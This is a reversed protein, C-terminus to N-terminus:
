AGPRRVRNVHVDMPSLFISVQRWACGPRFGPPTADAMAERGRAGATLRALVEDGSAAPPMVTGARSFFFVFFLALPVFLAPSLWRCVPGVVLGAGARWRHLSSGRFRSALDTPRRSQQPYAGRGFAGGSKVRRLRRAGQPARDAGAFIRWGIKSNCSANKLTTEELQEPESLYRKATLRSLRGELEHHKAALDHFVEDTQLLLERLDQSQQYGREAEKFPDLVFPVRRLRAFGRQVGSRLVLTLLRELHPVDGDVARCNGGYCLPMKWYTALISADYAQCPLGLGSM